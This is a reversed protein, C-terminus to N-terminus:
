STISICSFLKCTSTFWHFYWTTSFYCIWKAGNRSGVFICLGHSPNTTSIWAAGNFGCSEPRGLNEYYYMNFAYSAHAEVTNPEYCLHGPLLNSCTFNPQSCVWDLGEQLIKQDVGRAVCYTLNAPNKALLVFGIPREHEDAATVVSSSLVAFLLLLLGM